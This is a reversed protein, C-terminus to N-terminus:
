SSAPPRSRPPSNRTDGQRAHARQDRHRARRPHCDYLGHEADHESCRNRRHRGVPAQAHASDNRAIYGLVDPHHHARAPRQRRVHQDVYFRHSGRACQIRARHRLCPQPQFWLVVIGHCLGRHSYAGGLGVIGCDPAASPPVGRSGPSLHQQACRPVDYLCVLHSRHAQSRRDTSSLARRAGRLDSRHNAHAGRSVQGTWGM